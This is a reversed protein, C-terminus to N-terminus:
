SVAPVGGRRGADGPDHELERAIFLALELRAEESLGLFELGLQTPEPDTGAAERRAFAVRGETSVVGDGLFLELGFRAEPQAELWTRVLMGSLSLKLVEFDARAELDAPLFTKPHFRGTLRKRPSLVVHKELFGLLRKAEQTFVNDFALGAEYLVRPQEGEGPRTSALHCWRITGALDVAELDGALRIAYSRGLQLRDASELALGAVSLNRVRVQTRFLLSGRVDHVEYRKYRRQCGITM